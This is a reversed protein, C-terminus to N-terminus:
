ILFKFFFASIKTISSLEFLWNFIFILFKLLILFIFIIILTFFDKRYNIFNDILLKIFFIIGMILILLNLNSSLPIFFNLSYALITLLLIGFIGLYGLNIKEKKFFTFKLISGYGIISFLLLFYYSLYFHISM